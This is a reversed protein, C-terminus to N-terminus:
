RPSNSLFKFLFTNSFYEKTQLLKMLFYLRYCDISKFEEAQKSDFSELLRAFTKGVVPLRDWDVWKFDDQSTLLYGPNSIYNFVPVGAQYWDGGDTPPYDGLPGEPPLLILRKLKESNALQIIEEAIKRNFPVFLGAIEPQGSPVLNRQRDEKAELAVHEISIAYATHKVIDKAHEKLFTRTGISGHFHGSTFLFILNRKPPAKKKSFYEALSLVVSVGSADEVPSIFPSDHHCSIVVNEKSTGEIKAVVNHSLSPRREGTVRIRARKGRKAVEKLAEADERRIWGGPLPKDWIDKERFGYPAYMECSGGPQDVLVGLFGIAGKRKALHYLHWGLRIWVAPSTTGQFTSDPDYSGLAIKLIKDTELKPFGIETVIIKGKWDALHHKEERSAYILKGEIVKENPFPSYPIPFFPVPKWVPDEEIECSYDQVAWEDLPVPEKVVQKIGFNTLTAVLFDENKRGAESGPRRTGLAAQHKVWSNMRERDFVEM